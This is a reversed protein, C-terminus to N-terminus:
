ATLDEPEGSREAASGLDAVVFHRRELRPASATFCALGGLSEAPAAGLASASLQLTRLDPKRDRDRRTLRIVDHSSARLPHLERTLHQVPGHSGM